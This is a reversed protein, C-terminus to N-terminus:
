YNNVFIYIGIVIFFGVFHRFVMKFMVNKDGLFWM